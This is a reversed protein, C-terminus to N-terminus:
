TKNLGGFGNTAGCPGDLSIQGIGFIGVGECFLCSLCEPSEINEDVIGPVEDASAEEFINIGIEPSLDYIHIQCRHHHHCPGACFQQALRATGANDVHGTECAALTSM